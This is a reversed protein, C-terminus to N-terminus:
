FVHMYATAKEPSLTMVRHRGAWGWKGVWAKGGMGAQRCWGGAWAKGSFTHGLDM